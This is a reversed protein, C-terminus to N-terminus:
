DRVIESQVQWLPPQHWESKSNLVTKDSRRIQIGESVQRTLCDQFSGTVKASFDAPLDNHKELQHKKIFSESNRKQSRYKEMHEKARTYLNRATEGIYVCTNAEPCQNCSLEYQINSRLCSGGKGKGDQCALCDFNDCGPSSTPNSKQFHSKITRGGNEVIRFKFGAESESEAIERL